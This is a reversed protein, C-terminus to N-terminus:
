AKGGLAKGLSAAMMAMSSKKKKEKDEVGTVGEMSQSTKLFSTNPEVGGDNIDPSSSSGVGETGEDEDGICELIQSALAKIKSYDKM